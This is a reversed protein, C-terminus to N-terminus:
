GRTKNRLNESVQFKGSLKPHSAISRGTEVEVSRLNPVCVMMAQEKM